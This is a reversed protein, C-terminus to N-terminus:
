NHDVADNKAYEMNMVINHLFFIADSSIRSLAPALGPCTLSLAPSLAGGFAFASVCRNCVCIGCVCIRRPVDRAFAVCVCTPLRLVCRNPAFAVGLCDLRLSETRSMGRLRLGFALPAFAAIAFAFAFAFASAFAALLYVLSALFVLKKLTVQPTYPRKGFNKM